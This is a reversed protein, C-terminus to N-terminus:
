AYLVKNQANEREWATNPNPVSLRTRNICARFLFPKPPSFICVPRFKIAPSHSFALPLFILHQIWVVVSRLISLIANNIGDWRRKYTLPSVASFLTGIVVADLKRLYNYSTTKRHLLRGNQIGPGLQEFASSRKVRTEKDQTWFCKRPYKEKSNKSSGIMLKYVFLILDSISKWSEFRLEFRVSVRPWRLGAKFLEAWAMLANVSPQVKSTPTPVGM